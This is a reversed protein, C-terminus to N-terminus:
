RIFYILIIDIVMDFVISKFILDYKFVCGIYMFKLLYLIDCM